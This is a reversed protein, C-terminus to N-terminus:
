TSHNTINKTFITFGITKYIYLFYALNFSFLTAFLSDILPMTSISFITEGLRGFVQGAITFLLFMILYRRAWKDKTLKIFNVLLGIVILSLIISVADNSSPKDEYYNYGVYYTYWKFVAIASFILLMIYHGTAGNNSVNKNM